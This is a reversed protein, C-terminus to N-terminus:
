KPPTILKRPLIQIIAPNERQKGRCETESLSGAGAGRVTDAM